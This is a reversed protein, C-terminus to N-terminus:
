ASSYRSPDVVEEHHDDPVESTFKSCLRWFAILRLFSSEILRDTSLRIWRETSLVGTSSASVVSRKSGHIGGSSEFLVFTM